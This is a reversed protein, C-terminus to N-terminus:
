IIRVLTYVVPELHFPFLPAVLYICYKITLLLLLISKIVKVNVFFLACVIKSIIRPKNVYKVEELIKHSGEWAESPKYPPNM